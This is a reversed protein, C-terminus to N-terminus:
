LEAIVAGISALRRARGFRNGTVTMYRRDGYVEVGGFKRGTFDLSAMGWVHLGDGSPSVEIYTNRCRDVIHQAEDSLVGDVLCHDIDLCVVGDGNLVFGLGVGATSADASAFDSWTSSNMSSASSGWSSIPVKARTYRVWRDRVILEVPLGHPTDVPAARHAAVRCRTSCFSADARMTVPLRSSCRLCFRM